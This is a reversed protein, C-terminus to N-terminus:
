DYQFPLAICSVHITKCPFETRIARTNNLNFEVYLDKRFVPYPACTIRTLKMEAQFSDTCLFRDWGVENHNKTLLTKLHVDRGSIGGM